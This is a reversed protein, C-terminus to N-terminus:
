QIWNNIKNFLSRSSKWLSLKFIINYIGCDNSVVFIDGAVIEAIEVNGYTTTDYEMYGTKM